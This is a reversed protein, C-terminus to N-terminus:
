PLIAGGVLGSIEGDNPLEDEPPFCHLETDNERLGLDAGVRFGYAIEGLRGLFQTVGVHDDKVVDQAGVRCVVPIPFAGVCLAIHKVLGEHEVAIEGGNGLLQFQHRRDDNQTLPLRRQHGLLRRGYVHEAASPQAQAHADAPVGHFVLGQVLIKVVAAFATLFLERHQPSQPGLLDDVEVAAPVVDGM